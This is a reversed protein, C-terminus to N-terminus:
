LRIDVEECFDEIRLEELNPLDYDPKKIQNKVNEIHSVWKGSNLNGDKIDHYLMDLQEKIDGYLEERKRAYEYYQWACNLKHIEFSLEEWTPPESETPDCWDTFKKSESDILVNWYVVNPRLKRIANELSPEKFEM